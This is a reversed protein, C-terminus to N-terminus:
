DSQVGLFASELDHALDHAQVEESPARTVVAHQMPGKEMVWATMTLPPCYARSVSASLSLQEVETDM